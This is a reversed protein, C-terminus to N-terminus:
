TRFIRQFRTGRRRPMRGPTPPQSRAVIFSTTRDAATSPTTQCDRPILLHDKSPVGELHHTFRKSLAFRERHEDWPKREIVAQVRLLNQSHQGPPAVSMSM